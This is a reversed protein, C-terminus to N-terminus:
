ELDMKIFIILEIEFMEFECSYATENDFVNRNLAM